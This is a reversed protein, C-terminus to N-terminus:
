DTSTCGGEEEHEEMYEAIAMCNERGVCKKEDCIPCVVWCAVRMMDHELKTQGM